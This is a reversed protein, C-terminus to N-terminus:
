DRCGPPEADQGAELQALWDEAEAHAVHRGSVKWTEWARRVDQLLAERKEEREVYQAIAECMLHHTSRDMAEALKQVRAHISEDLKVAVPRTVAM